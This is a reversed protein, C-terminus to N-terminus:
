IRVPLTVTLVLAVVGLAAIVARSTWELRTM